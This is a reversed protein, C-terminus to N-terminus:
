LKELFRKKVARGFMAMIYDYERWGMIFLNRSIKLCILSPPLLPM